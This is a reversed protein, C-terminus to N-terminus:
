RLQVLYSWVAIHGVVDVYGDTFQLANFDGTVVLHVDADTTQIGGPVQPGETESM